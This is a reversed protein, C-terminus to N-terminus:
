AEAQLRRSAKHVAVRARACLHGLGEKRALNAAIIAATHAEHPSAGSTNKAMALLQNIRTHTDM